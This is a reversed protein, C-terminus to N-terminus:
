GQRVNAAVRTITQSMKDTHGKAGPVQSVPLHEHWNVEGTGGDGMVKHMELLFFVSKGTQKKMVWLIFMFHPLRKEQRM